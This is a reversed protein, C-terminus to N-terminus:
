ARSTVIRFSGSSTHPWRSRSSAAIAARVGLLRDTTRQGGMPRDAQARDFDGALPMRRERTAAGASSGSTGARTRGSPTVRFQLISIVRITPM